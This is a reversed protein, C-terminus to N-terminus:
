IMLRGSPATQFQVSTTYASCGCENRSCEMAQAEFFTSPLLNHVTCNIPGVIQTDRVECTTTSNLPKTIGDVIITIKSPTCSSQIESWIFQATYSTM